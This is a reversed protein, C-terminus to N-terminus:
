HTGPTYWHVGCLANVSAAYGVGALTAATDSPSTMTTPAPRAPRTAAHSSTSRPRRTRITSWSFASLMPPWANQDNPPSNKTSLGSCRRSPDAVAVLQRQLVPQAGGTEVPGLVVPRPLPRVGVHIKRRPLLAAPQTLAAQPRECQDAPGLATAIVCASVAVRHRAEVDGPPCPRGDHVDERTPEAIRRLRPERVARTSSSITSSPATTPTRPATSSGDFAARPTDDERFIMPSKSNRALRDDDGAPTDATIVIQDPLVPGFPHAPHGILQQAPHGGVDVAPHDPDGLACACTDDVAVPHPVVGLPDGVVIRDPRKM